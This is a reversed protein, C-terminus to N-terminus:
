SFISEKGASQQWSSMLWKMVLISFGYSGLRGALLMSCIQLVKLECSLSAFAVLVPLLAAHWAASARLPVV